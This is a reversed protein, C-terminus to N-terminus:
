RPAPPPGADDMLLAVPAGEAPTEDTAEAEEAEPDAVATVPPRAWDEGRALADLRVRIAEALDPLAHGDVTEPVPDVGVTAMLRGYAMQAEAFTQYRRLEAGIAATEATIRDVPDGAGGTQRRGTAEALRTEIRWLRDARDFQRTASALQHSVVHVQALVAMRLALRRADAVEEATEAHAIRDPASVINVLNWTIMAGWHNWHNNALFSNSNYERSFDLTIGPLLKLIEKRTEGTAIRGLYVQERLDPNNVLAALELDQIPVPVGPVAMTEPDPVAITFPRGPPLNVLAALEARAAVMEREIRELQRITELLTKQRQLVQTPPALREREVQELDALAGDAQRIADAVRDGLVQAAAARWFAYRVEQVLNAVAKRRRESAILARDANQKAAYWSVGFDLINWTAGLNATFLDRDTSTTPNADSLRGTIIDRSTSANENSRSTYGAGAALEPLLDFRDVDLQGLALAEEMVRARRDLNFRLVRALAENLTLPGDLAPQDAFMAARDEAARAEFEAQTFPDPTM